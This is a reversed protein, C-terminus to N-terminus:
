HADISEVTVGLRLSFVTNRLIENGFGNGIWDATLFSGSGPAGVSGLKNM